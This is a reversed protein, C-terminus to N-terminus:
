NTYLDSLHSITTVIQENSLSPLYAKVTVYLDKLLKEQIPNMSAQEEKLVKKIEEKILSKLESKNM